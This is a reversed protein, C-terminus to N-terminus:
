TNICKQTKTRELATLKAGYPGVFPDVTRFHGEQSVAASM